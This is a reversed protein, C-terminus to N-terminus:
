LAPLDRPRPNDGAGDREDDDQYYEESKQVLSVLGGFSGHFLGGDLSRGFRALTIRLITLDTRCRAPDGHPSCM